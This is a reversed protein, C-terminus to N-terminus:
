VSIILHNYEFTLITNHKTWVMVKSESYALFHTLTLFTLNPKYFAKLAVFLHQNINSTDSTHPREYIAHYLNPLKQVGEIGETISHYFAQGGRGRM